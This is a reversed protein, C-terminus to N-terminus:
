SGVGLKRFDLVKERVAKPVMQGIPAIDVLGEKMGWWIPEGTLTGEHFQKTVDKYINMRNENTM